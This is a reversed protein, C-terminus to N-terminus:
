HISLPKITVRLLAIASLIPFNKGPLPEMTVPVDVNIHQNKYTNEYRSFPVIRAHAHAIFCNKARALCRKARMITAVIIHATTAGLKALAWDRM